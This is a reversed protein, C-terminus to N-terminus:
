ARAIELSSRWALARREAAIWDRLKAWRRFFRRRASSRRLDRRDQQDGYRLQASVSLRCARLCIQWESPRTFEARAAQRRTPEGDERVTALRLTLVRRLAAEAKPHAALFKDARDVLVGGLEFSQAAVRMTGDGRRVLEADVHRRSHVSLCRCREWM